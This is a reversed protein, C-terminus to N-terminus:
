RSRWSCRIPMGTRMGVVGRLRDMVEDVGRVAAASEAMAAGRASEARWRRASPMEWRKPARRTSVSMESVTGAPVGVPRSPSFPEPFDVSSLIRAPSSSGSDPSTCAGPGTPRSRLLERVIRGRRREGLDDLLREGM